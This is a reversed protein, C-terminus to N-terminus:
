IQLLAAIQRSSAFSNYQVALDGFCWSLFPRWLHLGISVSSSKCDVSKSERKEPSQTSVIVCYKTTLCSRSDNKFFGPSIQLVSKGFLFRGMPNPLTASPSRHTSNAYILSSFFRWDQLTIVRNQSHTLGCQYPRMGWSCPFAWMISPLGHSPYWGGCGTVTGDMEWISPLFMCGRTAMAPMLAWSKSTMRSSARSRSNSALLIGSKFRSGNFSCSSRDITIAPRSLRPISRM